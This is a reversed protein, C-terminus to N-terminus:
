RHLPLGTKDTAAVCQTYAPKAQEANTARQDLSKPYATIAFLLIGLMAFQSHPFRASKSVASQM